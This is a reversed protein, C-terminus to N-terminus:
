ARIVAGTASQLQKAVKDMVAEVEADTLTRDVHQLRFAIAISKKSQEIGEGTYVDFLQFSKLIDSDVSSLCRDIEGATVNTDVLVALDRRIAPYRSISEFDPVQAQLTQPLNLEFVYVKDDIDLAENLQPHLAGLWGIQQGNKVIEACQGPHLAAHQGGHFEIQGGAAALLAEVDAKVDYFDISRSKGAWQEAYQPGYALGGITLTQTMNTLDGKFVRGVEFLRVRDQQRNLNYQLAQVLGPWLSQRMVSLDASIPNALAVPPTNNHQFLRHLEPDVFSYTIAEFYGRNVLTQQLREVSVKQESINSRLVHIQPRSLPLKDYGYLRGLEEILDVEITLDFRFSPVDVQWGQSIQQVSLGLRQLKETVDAQALEIGLVRKIREARLIISAPKPLDKESSIHTIAGAQGGAIDIILATAREMAQEALVPDVGREFRHSSDTHLGFQRAQGALASPSFFASELFIETTESTVSSEEGGMIGALALVKSTDAIVLTNDNLSVTQGDLLKLSESNKAMRVQIGGNLKATDFAHMPQGLELMVFNTVDVVPGLSRLGSRRLKEQLWLPSEAAANIETIVRGLYRPCASSAQVDISIGRDSSVSVSSYDPPTLNTKTIVGVERAIGAVGLCDSRNPTLDVEITVDDLDLYERIDRGIPADQPLAMLGDSSEALGLEKASCLMGFSPEGRLKAQKIKFDGPLVAGIVAVPVKLGTKVNSAGCVIDLLTETAVNVQCLRLKDANPHPNVSVVEGILVGQFDAAVPTVADVELGANTLGAVLAETSCDPNVWQRLWKESLKM